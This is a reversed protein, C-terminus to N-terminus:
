PFSAELALSTLAAPQPMWRKVHAALLRGRCSCVLRPTWHPLMVPMPRVSHESAFGAIAPQRTLAYAATVWQQSRLWSDKGLSSVRCALSCHRGHCTAFSGM